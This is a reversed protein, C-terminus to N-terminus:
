VPPWPYNPGRGPLPYQGSQVLKNIRRQFAAIERQDLLADLKKRYDADRDELQECLKQVDSALDNPLAHGAFDWIVTRLKHDINFTIGHDIGWLHDDQDLLCHGGKRDANNVLYDFIAMRQLQPYMTSTFSFYNVEPDHDIYFQVSGLGHPGDRLVTPPVLQWGLARSTEFAAVERYCLTGDPFDWLPREGKQPKYVARVEIEKHVISLLFTYNSSWRMVGFQTQVEGDQLITILRETTIPVRENKEGENENKM